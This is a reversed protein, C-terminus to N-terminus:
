WKLQGNTSTEATHWYATLLNGNEKKVFGMSEHQFQWAHRVEHALGYMVSQEPTLYAVQSEDKASARIHISYDEADFAYDIELGNDVFFADDIILTPVPIELLECLRNITEKIEKRKM